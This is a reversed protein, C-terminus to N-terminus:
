DSSCRSLRPLCCPRRRRGTPWCPIHDSAATLRGTRDPLVQTEQLAHFIEQDLLEDRPKGNFSEM